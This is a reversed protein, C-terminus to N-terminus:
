KQINQHQQKNLENSENRNLTIKYYIFVYAYPMPCPWLFRCSRDFITRAVFIHSCRFSVCNKHWSLDQFTRQFHVLAPETAIGQVARGAGSRKARSQEKENCHIQITQLNLFLDYMKMLQTNATQENVKENYFLVCGTATNIIKYIKLFNNKFKKSPQQHHLQQKRQQYMM